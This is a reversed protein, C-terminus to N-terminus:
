EGAKAVGTSLGYKASIETNVAGFYDSNDGVQLTSECKPACLYSFASGAKYVTVNQSGGRVVHLEFDSLVDGAQDLVLVNTTGFHRGHIVVVGDKVSVEAFLPNGIVITAPEGNIAVLRAQDAKVTISNEAASAPGNQALPSFLLASALLLTRGVVSANRNIVSPM